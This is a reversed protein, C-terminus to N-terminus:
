CKDHKHLYNLLLKFDVLDIKKLVIECQLYAFPHILNQLVIFLYMLQSSKQKSLRTHFLNFAVFDTARHVLPTKVEKYLKSQPLHTPVPNLPDSFDLSVASYGLTGLHQSGM